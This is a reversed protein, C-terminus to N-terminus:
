KKREASLLAFAPLLRDTEAQEEPPSTPGAAGTKRTGGVDKVSDSKPWYSGEPPGHSIALAQKQKFIEYIESAYTGFFEVPELYSM